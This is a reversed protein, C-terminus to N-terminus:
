DGDVDAAMDREAALEAALTRLQAIRDSLGGAQSAHIEEAVVDDADRAQAALKSESSAREQLAAILNNINIIEQNTTM